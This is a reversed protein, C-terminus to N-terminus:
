FERSKPLLCARPAADNSTDNGVNVCDERCLLYLDNLFIGHAYHLDALHRYPLKTDEESDILEMANETDLIERYFHQGSPKNVLGNLNDVFFNSLFNSDLGIFYVRRHGLYKLTAIAYLAVSPALGWPRVPNSARFLGQSSRGDVFIYNGDDKIIPEFSSPQVITIDLINRKIYNCVDSRLGVSSKYIPKWYDPDMLFYYDPVFQTSINSLYFNNMVAVKGGQKKFKEVQSITLAAASPGNGILLIESSVSNHLKKTVKLRQKLQPYEILTNSLLSLLARLKSKITDLSNLEPIQQHGPWTSIRNRISRGIRNSRIREFYDSVRMRMGIEYQKKVNNAVLSGNFKLM